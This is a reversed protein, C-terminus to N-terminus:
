RMDPKTTVLGPTKVAHERVFRILSDISEAVHLVVPEMRDRNLSVVVRGNPARTITFDEPRDM